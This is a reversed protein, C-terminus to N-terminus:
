EALSNENAIVTSEKEELSELYADSVTWAAKASHSGAYGNQVYVVVVIKPDDIPAYSMLWANNEVDLETRESTGTKAAPTYKAGAFYKTATGEEGASVDEMGRRIAALYEDAGEIVNAVVPQKELVVEGTPSIIKDVIQANYVTGGNAIASVYRAVSIPTVQTISQGIAAMITESATWRLDNIMYYFVNGLLHNAIYSRPIGLEVQLIEYIKSTWQDKALDSDALDLIMKAAEAMKDEDYHDGRDAAIEKFQAIIM